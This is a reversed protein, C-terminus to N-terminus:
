SPAYQPPPELNFSNVHGQPPNAALSTLNLTLLVSSQLEPAGAVQALDCVQSCKPGPDASEPM